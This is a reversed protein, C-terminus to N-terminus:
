KRLLRHSFVDFKEIAEAVHCCNWSCRHYQDCIKTKRASHASFCHSRRSSSSYAVYIFFRKLAFPLECKIYSDVNRFGRIHFGTKSIFTTCITVRRSAPVYMWYHLLFKKYCIVIKNWHVTHILDFTISLEVIESDQLSTMIIIPSSTLIM